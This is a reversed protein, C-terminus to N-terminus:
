PRNADESSTFHEDWWAGIAEALSPRYANCVEEPDGHARFRNLLVTVMGAVEAARWKTLQEPTATVTIIPEKLPM